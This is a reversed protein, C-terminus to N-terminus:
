TYSDTCFCTPSFSKLETYLHSCSLDALYLFQANKNKFNPPRAPKAQILVAPLRTTEQVRSLQM